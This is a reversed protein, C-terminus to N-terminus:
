RGGGELHRLVEELHASLRARFERPAIAGAEHNRLVLIRDARAVLIDLAGAAFVLATGGLAGPDRALLSSLVEVEGEQLCSPVLLNPAANDEDFICLPAGRYVARQLRSAMVLSSSGQGRVARTDGELGPPLRRFFLSVDEGGMGQSGGQALAVGPVTLVRERGDGLAHDDQGAVVAQLLTTKGQANSGAIAFVERRRIGLGTVRQNGAPLLIEVPDLEKPCIFPVSVGGKPGAIRHFCRLDTFHRAPRSGDGIFSVLGRAPLEERALKQDLSNVWERRVADAPFGAVFEGVAQLLEGLEDAIGGVEGREVPRNPVAGCVTLHIGQRDAFNGADPKWLSGGMASDSHIFTCPELADRYRAPFGTGAGQLPGLRRDHAAAAKVGEILASLAGDIGRPDLPIEGPLDRPVLIPLSFQLADHDFSPVLYANVPTRLRGTDIRASPLSLHGIIEPLADCWSEM